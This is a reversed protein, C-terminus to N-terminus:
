YMHLALFSSNLSSHVVSSHFIALDRSRRRHEYWFSLEAQSASGPLLGAPANGREIGRVNNADRAIVYFEGSGADPRVELLDGPQCQLVACIAELTSFRVARAKGTKLISLNALTIGIRESLETLTMRRRYLMEDLKVIIAMECPEKWSKACRAGQEFVRALVLLLLVALCRTLSFDWSIHLPVGASSIGAAVAGVAFHMVELTLLAWAIAQLRAANAAVFPDGTSCRRRRDTLLRTLVFHVM